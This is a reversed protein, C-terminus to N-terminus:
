KKQLSQHFATAKEIINKMEPQETLRKLYSFATPALEELKETKFGILPHPLHQALLFYLGVDALSIEGNAIFPSETTRLKMFNEFRAFDVKLFNQRKKEKQEGEPTVYLASACWISSAVEFAEDVYLAKLPDEPYLGNIKAAYRAIAGSQCIFGSNDVEFVPLQHLPYITQNKGFEEFSCIVNKLHKEGHYFCLRIVQPYIFTSKTHYLLYPINHYHTSYGILTLHFSSQIVLVLIDFIYNIFIM